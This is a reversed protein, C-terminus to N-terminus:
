GKRLGKAFSQRLCVFGSEAGNNEKLQVSTEVASEDWANIVYQLGEEVIAGDEVHITLEVDVVRKVTTLIKL